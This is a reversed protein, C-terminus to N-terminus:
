QAKLRILEKRANEMFPREASDTRAVEVYKEWAQISKEKDGKLSYAAALNYLAAGYAPKINIALLYAAIESDIDNLSHLIVGRNYAAKHSKPEIELVKAYVDLAQRLIPEKRESSTEREATKTLCIAYNFLADPSDPTLKLLAEFATKAEDLQDNEMLAVGLNNWSDIAQPDVEVAKQLQAIGEEKKGADLLSMGLNHLANLYNGDLDLAKLYAQAEKAYNKKRGYAVGLNYWGEKSDPKLVVAKELSSIALDIKGAAMEQAGLRFLDNADSQAHGTEPFTLVAVLSLFILSRGVRNAFCNSM